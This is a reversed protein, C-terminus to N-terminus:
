LRPLLRLAAEPQGGIGESLGGEAEAVKGMPELNLALYDYARADNPRLKVVQEFASVAQENRKARDYLAGLQYLAEANSPDLKVSRELMELGDKGRGQMALMQGRLALSGPDDPAFALAEQSLENARDYNRRALQVRGLGVLVASCAPAQSNLPQLIQDAEDPQGADLATLAKQVEPRAASCAADEAPAAAMAALLVIAIM